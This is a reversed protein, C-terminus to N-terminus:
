IEPFIGGFYPWVYPVLTGGHIPDQFEWQSYDRLKVGSRGTSTQHGSLGVALPKVVATKEMAMAM